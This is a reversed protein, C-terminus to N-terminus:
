RVEFVPFMSPLYRLCLLSCNRYLATAYLRGTAKGSRFIGNTVAYTEEHCTGCVLVRRVVNHAARMGGGENMGGFDWGCPSFRSKARVLCESSVAWGALIGNPAARIPGYVSSTALISMSPRHLSASEHRHM